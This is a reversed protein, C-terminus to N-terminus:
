SSSVVSTTRAIFPPALPPVIADVIELINITEPARALRYGGGIGDSASVIGTRQAHQNGAMLPPPFHLIFIVIGALDDLGRILNMKWDPLGYQEIQLRCIDNM